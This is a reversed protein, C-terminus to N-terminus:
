AMEIDNRKSETNQHIEDFDNANVVMRNGSRQQNGKNKDDKSKCKSICPKLLVGFIIVLSVFTALAIGYCVYIYFKAERLVDHKIPEKCSMKPIGDNVNSFLYFRSVTSEIDVPNIYAVTCIGACKNAEEVEAFWVEFRSRM